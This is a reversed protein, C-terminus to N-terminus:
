RVVSIALGDGTPVIASVLRPDARIKETYARLAQTSADRNKPDWMQGHWLLNDAAIVGGPRALRIAHDLYQPYEEKVCDVYILDFGPALRPLVDLAAGQHITVRPAVGAEAFARHARKAMAEDIEITELRGEAPMGSLLWLAGYGLNTGVELVRKGGSAAALVRLLAGTQPNSAPEGEKKAESELRAMVPTMAPRLSDLYASADHRLFDPDM